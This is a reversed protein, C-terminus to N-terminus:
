MYILFDQNEKLQHLQMPVLLVEAGMLLRIAANNAM